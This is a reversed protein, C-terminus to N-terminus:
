APGSRSSLFAFGWAPAGRAESGYIYTHTDFVAPDQPNIRYTFSPAERLLWSFPKVPKNTVLMFWDNPVAALDPWVLRDTWGKLLNETAGAMAYNPAPGAGLNGIIPSGMFQAQLITDLTIKLQPASMTMDPMLGLAEGNDAKRSAMEEWVTAFSNVSLSGGVTVGGVSVGGKFDNCYTGKSADFFAVKHATNWHSLGDLGNQRSGTQSGTNQLLDRLQYDPWKRANEGMFTVTPYYMGYQDDKLKFKDIAKTSEFNQIPVLYTQLPPNQTIRPGLWERMPELMPEWGSAWQETSVPYTTAIKDLVTPALSYATWFRTELSTFFLNLNAPTILM